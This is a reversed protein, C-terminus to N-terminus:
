PECVGLISCHNTPQLSKESHPVVIEEGIIARLEAPPITDHFFIALSIKVLFVDPAADMMWLREPFQARELFGQLPEKKVRNTTRGIPFENVMEYWHEDM